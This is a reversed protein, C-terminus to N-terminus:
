CNEKSEFIFGVKILSKENINHSVVAKTRHGGSRGCLATVEIRIPMGYINSEQHSQSVRLFENLLAGPSNQWKSRIKM